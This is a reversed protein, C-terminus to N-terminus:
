NPSCTSTFELALGLVTKGMTQLPLVTVPCTDYCQMRYKTSGTRGQIDSQFLPLPWHTNLKVYMDEFNPLKENIYLLFRQLHCPEIYLIAIVITCPVLVLARRSM